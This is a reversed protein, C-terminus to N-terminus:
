NGVYSAILQLSQRDRWNNIDLSCVLNSITAPLMDQTSNFWMVERTVGHKEVTLKHHKGDKLPRVDVVSLDQLWFKPKPNGLGYPELKTLLHSLALTCQGLTLKTDVTYSPTLLKLPIFEDAYQYLQSEFKTLNSPTISFGAAQEHGGVSEFLDSFQRLIATINIGKVSRASGKCITSGQAVVVAPRNFKEALKGAVLGIVGEHYSESTNFIVRHQVPSKLALSIAQETLDQRNKNHTEITQALNGAVAADLTCLLRLGDLPNDLRGVANLRPAIAYNLDYASVPRNDIGALKKIANIGRNASHSLSKLGAIVITRNIGVLPMQDAVIGVTALGVLEAVARHSDALYMSTLWSIGAGSTVTSHILCTAPPLLSGAIHHDTVIVQVGSDVLEKIEKHAVIGNDVTIVLQPRFDPFATSRFAQGSQIDKLARASLGYGHRRRDPIFPLIRAQSGKGLGMLTTWMIASATLGDADYDGFVLIDAGSKIADLVLRKAQKLMRKNVPIQELLFDLTPAPPLLELRRNALLTKFIMEASDSPSVTLRQTILM